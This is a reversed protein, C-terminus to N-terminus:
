DFGRALAALADRAAASEPYEAMVSRARRACDGYAAQCGYERHDDSDEAEEELEAIRVDRTEVAVELVGVRRELRAVRRALRDEEASGGDRKELQRAPSYPAASSARRKGTTSATAAAASGHLAGGGGAGAGAGSGGDGGSSPRVHQPVPGGAAGGGFIHRLLAPPM